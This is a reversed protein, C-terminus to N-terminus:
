KWTACIGGRFGKTTKQIEGVGKVDNEKPVENKVGRVCQRVQRKTLQALLTVQM